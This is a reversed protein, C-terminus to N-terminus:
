IIKKGHHADKKVVYDMSQMEILRSATRQFEKKMFGEPYLANANAAASIIVRVKADYLVDVLSIFLSIVNKNEATIVPVHSVLITEYQKSLTLYDLESRPPSCLISFDFWIINEGRKKIDIKRDNILVPAFFVTGSENLVDFIAQMKKEALEDLPTYYIGTHTLYDLRYDHESKFFIVDMYKKILFIAPLFQERQLGNLYLEDPKVNSTIVLCIKEAFFAAFLKGLVMADVINTVFFEDFCILMFKKAIKKAVVQLPNKQGQAIKLEEQIWQMFSYFHIRLKHQFPIAEYFCDMLFTKGIGVSGFLYIGTILKKPYFISFFHYRKKHEIILKQYLKDFSSLIAAQHEDYTIHTQKKYIALPTLLPKLM